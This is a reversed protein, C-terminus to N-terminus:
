EWHSKVVDYQQQTEVRESQSFRGEGPDKQNALSIMHSVSVCAHRSSVSRSSPGM